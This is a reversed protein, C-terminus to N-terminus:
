RQPFGRLLRLRCAKNIAAGAARKRDAVNVGNQAIPEICTVEFAIAPSILATVLRQNRPVKPLANLANEITAVSALKAM